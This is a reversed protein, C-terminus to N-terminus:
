FSGIKAMKPTGFIASRSGSEFIGFRSVSPGNLQCTISDLPHELFAIFFEVLSVLAHRLTPSKDTLVVAMLVWSVLLGVLGM